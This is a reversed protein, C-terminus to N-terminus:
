EKRKLKKRMKRSVLELVKKLLHDELEPHTLLSILVIERLEKRIVVETEKLEKQQLEKVM